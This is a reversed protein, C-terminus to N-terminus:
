AIVIALDNNQHMYSPSRTAVIEAYKRKFIAQTDGIRSHRVPVKYCNLVLGANHFNIRWKKKFVWRKFQALTAFGFHYKLMQEYAIHTYCALGLGKDRWPSPHKDQMCDGAYRGWAKSAYVGRGDTTELRWIFNYKVKKPKKKKQTAVVLITNKM